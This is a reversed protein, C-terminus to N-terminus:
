IDGLFPIEERIANRITSMIYYDVQVFKAAELASTAKKMKKYYSAYLKTLSAENKLMRTALDDAETEGIRAYKEIYENIILIHEKGIAKREVEFADYVAWFAPAKDAPLAMYSEILAKKDKGFAEQVFKVEDDISQAFSSGIGIFFLILASLILKKM